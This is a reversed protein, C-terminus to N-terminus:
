LKELVIAYRYSHESIRIATMARQEDEMKSQYLLDTANLPHDPFYLQTTLERYGSKSIRFHIHPPRTWESNAPYPGPMVTKFRFAGRKGSLVIAWGQFNPDLPAPNRDHPHHYRGAANAQWLDVTTDTVPNGQTDIVQGEIIIIEGQAQESRGEIRTLDFDQDAQPYVPYFPGATEKPTAPLPTTSGPRALGALLGGLGTLM